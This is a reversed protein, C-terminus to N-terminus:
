SGSDIVQRAREPQLKKKKMVENMQTEGRFLRKRGDGEMKETDKLGLERITKTKQRQSLFPTAAEDLWYSAAERVCTLQLSLVGLVLLTWGRKM